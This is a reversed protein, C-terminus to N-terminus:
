EIRMITQAKLDVIEPFGPVPIALKLPYTVKVTLQNGSPSGAGLVDVTATEKLNASSLYSGITQKIEDTSQGLTGLRAGERTANTVVQQSTFLHGLSFIALIM